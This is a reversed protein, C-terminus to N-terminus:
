GFGSQFSDRGEWAVPLYWLGEIRLVVKQSDDASSQSPILKGDPFRVKLAHPPPNPRWELGSAATNPRSEPKLSSERSMCDATAKHSRRVRRRPWKSPSNKIKERKEGKQQRLFPHIGNDSESDNEHAVGTQAGAGHELHTHRICQARPKDNALHHAYGTLSLHGEGRLRTEPATLARPTPTSVHVSEITIDMAQMVIYAICM